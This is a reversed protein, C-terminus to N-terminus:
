TTQNKRDNQEVMSSSAKEASLMFNHRERRYQLQKVCKPDINRKICESFM